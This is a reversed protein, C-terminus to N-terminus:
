SAKRLVGLACAFCKTKRYTRGVDKDIGHRVNRSELSCCWSLRARERNQAYCGEGMEGTRDVSERSKLRMASVQEIKSSSTRHFRSEDIEDVM